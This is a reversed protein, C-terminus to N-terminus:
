FIQESNPQEYSEIGISLYVSQAKLMLNEKQLSMFFKKRNLLLASQAEQWTLPFFSEMLPNPKTNLNLILRYM